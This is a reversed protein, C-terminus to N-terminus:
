DPLACARRAIWPLPCCRIGDAYCLSHAPSPAVPLGAAPQRGAMPCHQPLGSDALSLCAVGLLGPGLDAVKVSLRCSPM